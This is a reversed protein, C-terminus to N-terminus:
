FRPEFFRSHYLLRQAKDVATYESIQEKKLRNREDYHDMPIFKEVYVKRSPTLDGAITPVGDVHDIWANRYMVLKNANFNTTWKLGDVTYSVNLAKNTRSDRVVM